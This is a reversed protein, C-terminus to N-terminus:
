KVGSLLLTILIHRQQLRRTCCSAGTRAQAECTLANEVCPSLRSVRLCSESWCTSKGDVQVAFAALSSCLRRVVRKFCTTVHIHRATANHLAEWGPQGMHTGVLLLAVYLM